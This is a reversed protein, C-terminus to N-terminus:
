GLFRGLEPMWDDFFIENACLANWLPEIFGIILGLADEWAADVNVKKCSKDWRKRM